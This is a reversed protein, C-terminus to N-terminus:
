ASCNECARDTQRFRLEELQFQFFHVYREFASAAEVLFFVENKHFSGGFAALVSCHTANVV